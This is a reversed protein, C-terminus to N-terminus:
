QSIVLSVDTCIPWNVCTPLKSYWQNSVMGWCIFCYAWLRFNGQQIYKIMDGGYLIVDYSTVMFVYCYTFSGGAWAPGNGVRSRAEATMSPNTGAWTWPTRGWMIWTRLAQAVLNPQWSLIAIDTCPSSLDAVSKVMVNLSLWVSRCVSGHSSKCLAGATKEMSCFMNLSTFSLQSPCARLIPCVIWLAVVHTLGPTSQGHASIYSWVFYCVDILYM